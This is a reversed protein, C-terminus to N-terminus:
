EPWKPKDWRLLQKEVFALWDAKATAREIDQNSQSFM